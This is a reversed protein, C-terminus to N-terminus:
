KKNTLATTRVCYIATQSSHPQELTNHSVVVATQSICTSLLFVSLLQVLRNKCYGPLEALWCLAGRWNDNWYADACCSCLRTIQGFRNLNLVVFWALNWAQSGISKEEKKLSAFLLKRTVKQAYICCPTVSNDICVECAKGTMFM